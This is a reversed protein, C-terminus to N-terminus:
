QKKQPLALQKFVTTMADAVAIEAAQDWSYERDRDRVKKGVEQKITAQGDGTFGMTRGPINEGLMHIAVHVVLRQAGPKGEMPVLEESAETIEVSVLYAGSIGKSALFRRYADAASKWEPAGELKAVLQPHKEFAKKVQGEVRPTANKAVDPKVEPKANVSFLEFHYKKPAAEVRGAGLLLLCASLALIALPHLPRAMLNM